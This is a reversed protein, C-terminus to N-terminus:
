AWAWTMGSRSERRERKEVDLGDAFVAPEVELVSGLDGWMERCGTPMAVTEPDHALAAM